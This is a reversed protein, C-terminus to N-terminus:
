DKSREKAAVKRSARCRVQEFIPKTVDVWQPRRVKGQACWAGGSDHARDERRPWGCRYGIRAEEHEHAGIYHNLRESAM